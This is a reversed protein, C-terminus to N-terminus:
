KHLSRPKRPYKKEMWGEQDRYDSEFEQLSRPKRPYKKEMCGEQDRYDSEFEQQAKCVRLDQWM